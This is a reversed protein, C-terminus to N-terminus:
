ESSIRVVPTIPLLDRHMERMWTLAGFRPLHSPWDVLHRWGSCVSEHFDTCPDQSSNSAALMKSLAEGAGLSPESDSFRRPNSSAFERLRARPSNTLEDYHLANASFPPWGYM